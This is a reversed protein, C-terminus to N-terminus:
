AIISQAYSSLVVGEGTLGMDICADKLKIRHILTGKDGAMSM